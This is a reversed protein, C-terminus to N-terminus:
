QMQKITEVAVHVLIAVVVTIFAVPPSPFLDMWYIVLVGTIVAEIAVQPIGLQGLGPVRVVLADGGSIVGRGVV